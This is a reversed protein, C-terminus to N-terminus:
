SRPDFSSKNNNKDNDEVNDKQPKEGKLNAAETNQSDM